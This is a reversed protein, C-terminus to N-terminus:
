VADLTVLCYGLKRAELSIRKVRLEEQKQRSVEFKGENYIDKTKLLHYVIVLM